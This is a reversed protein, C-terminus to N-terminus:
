PFIRKRIAIPHPYWRWVEAGNARSLYEPVGFNRSTDIDSKSFPPFPKNQM